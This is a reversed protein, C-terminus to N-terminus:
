KGYLPDAMKEILMFPVVRRVFLLRPLYRTRVNGHKM